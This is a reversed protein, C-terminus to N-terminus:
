QISRSSAKRYDFGRLNHAGGPFRREFVAVQSATDLLRDWHRAEFSGTM